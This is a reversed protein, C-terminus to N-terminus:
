LMGEQESLLGLRQRMLHLYNAAFTSHFYSDILARTAEIPVLPHLAEALKHLNWKCIDPQNSYTYRASGDSGNAVFDLM